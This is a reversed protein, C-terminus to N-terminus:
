RFGFGSDLVCLYSGTEESILYSGVSPVSNDLYDTVSSVRCSSGSHFSDIEVDGFFLDFSKTLRFLIPVVIQEDASMAGAKELGTVGLDDASVVGFEAPQGVIVAQCSVDFVLKIAQKIQRLIAQKLCQCGFVSFTHLVYRAFESLVTFKNEFTLHSILSLLNRNKLQLM